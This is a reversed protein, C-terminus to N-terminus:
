STEVALFRSVDGSAVRMLLMGNRAEKAAAIAEKVSEVPKRSVETIVDGVRLGADAAASAPDIEVVLLGKEIEDAVGYRSRLADTLATVRVGDIFESKGADPSEGPVGGAAAVKEPDLMGIRAKLEVEKGDRWVGFSASEGPQISGVSFRLAAMDGVPEGDLKVIVDGAEFGAREAPTGPMVENVLVGESDFALAKALDPTVRGLMVGLFGRDVRGDTMLDDAIELALNIPIAFGIGVNGGTRSFIATNIGVVRGRNDVLAGGSNGPNISADTQIFDEYGTINLNNRGIASVIGSTVTKNLGFPNGMALVADGPRLLASDGMTAAPLNEADIKLVALDTGPDRGVITADHEEGNEEFAIRIEDTGEVVHNNTLIYGDTTLIVGSGLGQQKPWSRHRPEANGNGGDPDRRPNGFFRELDRDEFFRRFPSDGFDFGQAFGPDVRKTAYVSVVSPSVKEVVKAYGALPGNGERDPASRDVTIGKALPPSQYEAATLAVALTAGLMAGGMGGIMAKVSKMTKM